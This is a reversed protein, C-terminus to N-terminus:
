SLRRAADLAARLDEPLSSEIAVDEGTVPHTFALRRAHLFQRHLGLLGAHGYEPDGAVPHGIAELHVRIQHTRGTELTVKLLSFRPLAEEIAFHTRAERPTDTDTSHKTRVRRDRGIPADITGTRSPPRGEVLAAYERVVERRQLADKLAAHVPDSKAVVLLGSTDRDLRHVLGARWEDEGGEATGELAQALTGTLHGKSPHVVVGAPKDVVLLHEDEYPVAYEVGAGVDEPAPPPADAAEDVEVVDGESLKHRKPLARGNVTVAGADILRAARSRSGLPEALLTDLRTGADAAVVTLRM